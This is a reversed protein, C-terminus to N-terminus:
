AAADAAQIKEEHQQLLTEGIQVILRRTATSPNRFAQHVTNRSATPRQKRVEEILTSILGRASLDDYTQSKQSM